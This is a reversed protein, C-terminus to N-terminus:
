PANSKPMNTARSARGSRCACSKDAWTKVGMRPSTVANPSAATSRREDVATAGAAAATRRRASHTSSNM